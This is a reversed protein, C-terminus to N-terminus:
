GASLWGYRPEALLLKPKEPWWLDSCLKLDVHTYYKLRRFLEFAHVRVSLIVEGFYLQMEPTGPAPVTGYRREYEDHPLVISVDLDRPHNKHLASGVLYVKGGTADAVEQAWHHIVLFRNWTLLKNDLDPRPPNKGLVPEGSM